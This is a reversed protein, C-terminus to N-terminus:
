HYICVKLNSTWSKLQLLRTSWLGWSVQLSAVMHSVSFLSHVPAWIPDFNRLSTFSAFSTMRLKMITPQWYPLIMLMASVQFQCKGTWFWCVFLQCTDLNAIYEFCKMEKGWVTLCARQPWIFIVNKMVQCTSLDPSRSSDSKSFVAPFAGTGVPNEQAGWFMGFCFCNLIIYTTSM